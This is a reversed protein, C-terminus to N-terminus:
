KEYIVEINRLAIEKFDDSVKKFDVFDIKQMIPLDDLKEKIEAMLAGPVEEGAEVGVDLDSRETAQGAVRSGFYFIRFHPSRLRSSIIDIIKGTVEQQNFGVGNV